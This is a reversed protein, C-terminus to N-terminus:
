RRAPKGPRKAEEEAWTRDIQIEDVLRANRGLGFLYDVKNMECWALLAERAFRQRRATPNEDQAL